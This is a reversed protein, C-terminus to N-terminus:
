FESDCYGFRRADMTPSHYASASHELQITASTGVGYATTHRRSLLGLLDIGLCRPGSANCCGSFFFLGNVHSSLRIMVMWSM